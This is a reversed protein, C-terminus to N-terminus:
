NMLKLARGGIRVVYVGRHPLPITANDVNTSIAIQAGSLDFVAVTQRNANRVTLVGNSVFADADTGIPQVGSTLDRYQIESPNSLLIRNDSKRYYATVSYGYRQNATAAPTTFAYKLDTTEGGGSVAVVVANGAAIHQAVSMDDFWIIGPIEVSSPQILIYTDKAGGEITLTQKTPTTTAKFTKLKTKDVPTQRGAENTYYFGITAEIDATASATLEVTATGNDNSFDLEPSRLFPSYLSGGNNNLGIKGDADLEGFSLMWGYTDAYDSLYYDGPLSETTNVGSFDTNLFFFTGDELFAQERFLQTFYGHAFPVAEWNGTFGSASANTMADVAMDQLKGLEISQAPSPDSSLNDNFAKVTFTYTTAENGNLNEVKYSTETVKLDTLISNDNSDNVTLLYYTAGKM